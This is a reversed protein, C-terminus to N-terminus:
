EAPNVKQAGTKQSVKRYLYQLLYDFTNGAQEQLMAQKAAPIQEAINEPTSIKQVELIVPAPLGKLLVYAPKGDEPRAKLLEAYAEPPMSQRAQQANLDSVASWKVDTQRGSKLDALVEDAKDAALRGAESRLYSMLVDEKVEAFPATKEERVEKVRVVWVTDNSINIPESNHKKNLVEDSFVTDLLEDSMGAAKGNERNLWEDPSVVKLDLVKAAEALSNPNNFAAEALKEKAANFELNAKRQKLETELYAKEQEFDPKDQINLVRVIYYGTETQILDSIQGKELAFTANELAAGMAGNKSVWLSSADQGDQAYKKAQAAFASPKAKVQALVKEAEAKVAARGAEDQIHVTPFFIHAIERRPGANAAQEDFAKRVEEASVTQKEALDHMNLAVYEIKVAQPIVYDKKNAEYYRQLSADDTKVKGAFEELNFTVSRITRVAQTLSVLQEAQVDSVLTGSQVLNLLNQLAFQERIEEVFQDESMRRQDLYQTLLAQSFTGTSDHFNPDDVIIQKIQEQSVAIGMLKAGQTLYARQVLSQFVADRSEGQVNHMANNLSHESIKQDGVMVIYDSGPAAATSVGFGVFTLAILGLMIKAPGKYKEVTHFM